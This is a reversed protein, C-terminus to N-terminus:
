AVRYPVWVQLDRGSTCSGSAMHTLYTHMYTLPRESLAYQLTHAIRAYIPYAVTGLRAHWARCVWEAAALAQWQGCWNDMGLRAGESM